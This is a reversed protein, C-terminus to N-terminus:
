KNSKRILAAKIDDNVLALTSAAVAFQEESFTADYRDVRKGGYGRIMEPEVGPMTHVTNFAERIKAKMDESLRTNLVLPPNPIPESRVAVKFKSPDILKQNVAKEYSDFSLCAADVHGENLAMLSNAHSGTLRVEALDNVPDMGERLMMAIQYTFSSASSTDGFSVRKGKLDHLTNIPADARVFIGAYYTSEGNLVSVALLEAGKRDRAQVYSVPGMFAVHVLDSVLAEVVSGYSQGVRMTFHLGTAKTVANFVPQFDALTGSETGGDAPILMVNLPNKADGLPVTAMATIPMAMAFLFGACLAIFKRRSTTNFGVSNLSHSDGAEERHPTAASVSESTIRKM